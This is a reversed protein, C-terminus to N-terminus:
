VGPAYDPAPPLGFFEELTLVGTEHLETALELGVYRYHWPEFIYGTIETKGEPYRLHFGFRWANGALWTGATTQAFCQEVGCGETTSMIDATLGTQHESYGPVASQARAKEVGLRSVWNNHVQVQLAYSRYGNQVMLQGAGEAAAAAFMRELAAAAEARMTANAAYPVNATVLDTPAFDIPNLPRLKDNVVWLSDPADISNASKDFEPEPPPSPTPTPTPSPTPSPTVTPTESAIPSAGPDGQQSAVAAIGIGVAVIVVAAIAIVAIRRRRTRVEASPHPRPETM